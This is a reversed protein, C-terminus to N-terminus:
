SEEEPSLLSSLAARLGGQGMLARTEYKITKKGVESFSRTKIVNQAESLAQQALSPEGIEYLRTALNELRRTAEEIRGAELDARAKEQIRYLTLKSLADMIVSPPEEYSPTPNVDISFDSVAQFSPQRNKLIDGAAVLRAFTRFGTKMRGPIQLQLLVAIPRNVQLSALPIIGDNIDLPQPNPSLKFAMELTIDPDPAVVLEMREAFANSLARVHENLYKVVVETSSIYMSTGGTSSALTDLFEDNWDSGLGMATIAVGHEYAEKALAFCAEQDGFTHGDTLLIIHNVLRPSINKRIEDYGTKLGQYIETSGSASIMSIRARLATKDETATAPIIVTARDNFTVVSIFDQPNLDQIIKQAAVKVRDIRPGKMSKSVDLVLCINLRAEQKPVSSVQPPASIEALMYVVQDEDLPMVARKSPTVRLTFYLDENQGNNKSAIEDIQRRAIPDSLLNYALSIDQFQRAASALRNKDPHLRQALRHYVRKIDESSASRSLGLLVYPDFKMDM